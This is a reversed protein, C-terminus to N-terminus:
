QAVSREAGVSAVISRRLGAADLGHARSHEAATGYRHLETRGVGLSVLRHRTGGLAQAVAHASTGALYPEVLVVSDSDARGLLSRLGAGDFPRPRHTYAVTVDLGECAALTADLMPGVAVVVGRSGFRLPVLEGDGGYARRNHQESLRLYILDDRAAAADLLPGVEAAHGPVHV